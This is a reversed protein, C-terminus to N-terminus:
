AREGKRGFLHLRQGVRRPIPVLVEVEEGGRQRSQDIEQQDSLPVLDGVLFAPRPRLALAVGGLRRTAGALGGPRPATPPGGRSWLLRGEKWVQRGSSLARMRRARRPYGRARRRAVGPAGSHATTSYGHLTYVMVRAARIPTSSPTVAAATAADLATGGM